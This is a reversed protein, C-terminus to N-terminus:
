KGLVEFAQTDKAKDNIKQSFPDMSCYAMRSASDAASYNPLSDRM